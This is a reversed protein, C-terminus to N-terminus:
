PWSLALPGPSQVMDLVQSVGMTMLGLGSGTAGPVLGADMIKSSLGAGM